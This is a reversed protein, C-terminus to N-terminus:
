DDGGMTRVRAAERRAIIERHMSGKQTQFLTTFYQGAVGDRISAAVDLGARGILLNPRYKLWKNEINNTLSEDRGFYVMRLKYTDDPTPFIRFYEGDLSYAEPSGPTPYLSRGQWTDMKPLVTWVPTSGSDDYLYMFDEEDIERLFVPDNPLAIREEDATTEVSSVETKLFYPLEEDMELEAQADQLALVITADLNPHFALRLKIREVAEDRTM